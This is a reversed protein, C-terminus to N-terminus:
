YLHFSTEVTIQVPVPEGDKTSPDFRWSRVAEVSKEDLGLGVPKIVRIDRTSGDRDVVLQLVCIGQFRLARAMETFEPDPHYTPHPPQVGRGARYVGNPPATDESGAHLGGGAGFTQIKTESKSPESKPAAANKQFWDKWYDPVAEALPEGSAVFVANMAKVVDAMEPEQVGCDVEVHVKQKAWKGVAKMDFLQSASDDKTLSDIDRLQRSQKDYFLVLRQAGIHVVGGKLSIDKVRVQAYVTWPGPSIAASLRGAADFHLHEGPYAQRMTLVKDGYEKRLDDNNVRAAAITASGFFVLIGVLVVATLRLFTATSHGPARRLTMEDEDPAHIKDSIM